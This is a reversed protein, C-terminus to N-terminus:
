ELGSFLYMSLTLLLLVLLVHLIHEFRVNFVGFRRWQRQEPTKKTLKSCIKVGGLTKITSKSCTINASVTLHKVLKVLFCFNWWTSKLRNLVVTGKMCFGILKIQLQNIQRTTQFSYLVGPIQFLRSHSCEFEWVHVSFLLHMWFGTLCRLCLRKCFYKLPKIKAFHEM